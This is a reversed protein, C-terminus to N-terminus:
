IVMKLWGFGRRGKLWLICASVMICCAIIAVWTSFCMKGLIAVIISIIIGHIFYILSSMSRLWSFSIRDNTLQWNCILPFLGFAIVPVGFAVDPHRPEFHMMFIGVLILVYSLLPKMEWDKKLAYFCGFSLYTLSLCLGTINLLKNQYVITSWLWFWGPNDMSGYHTYAKNFVYSAIAIFVFMWPKVGKRVLFMVVPMVCILGWMYWLHNYGRFIIRYIVSGIDNVGMNGIALEYITIIFSWVCYYRAIKKIYKNVGGVPRQVIFYSSCMFFFPVASMLLAILLERVFDMEISKVYGTHITVVCLAMIFKVLDISNYVKNKNEM